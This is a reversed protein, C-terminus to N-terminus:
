PTRRETLWDHRAEHDVDDLGSRNFTFGPCLVDLMRKAEDPTLLDLWYQNM